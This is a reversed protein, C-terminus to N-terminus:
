RILAPIRTDYYNFRAVQTARMRVSKPVVGRDIRKNYNRDAGFLGNFIQRNTLGSGRDPGSANLMQHETVDTGTPSEIPIANKWIMNKEPNRFCFLHPDVFQVGDMRGYFNNTLIGGGDTRPGALPYRSADLPASPLTEFDEYAQWDVVWFVIERCRESAAFPMTLSYHDIDGFLNSTGNQRMTGELKAKTGLEAIPNDPYTASLGINRIPRPSLPRWQQASQGATGMITGSMAPSFLDYQLLPYDLMITREVPRPVAWDYPFSAAFAM